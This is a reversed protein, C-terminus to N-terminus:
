RQAGEEGDIKRLEANLRRHERLIRVIMAGVIAFTVGYALVIYTWHAEDNM